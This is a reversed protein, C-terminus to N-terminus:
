ECDLFVAWAVCGLPDAIPSPVRVQRRLAQRVRGISDFPFPSDYASFPSNSRRAM